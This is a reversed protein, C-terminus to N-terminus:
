VEDTVEVAEQASICFIHCSVCTKFHAKAQFEFRRNILVKDKRFFLALVRKCNAIYYPLIVSDEFFRGTVFRFHLDFLTLRVRRARM